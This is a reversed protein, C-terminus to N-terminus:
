ADNSQDAADAAQEPDLFKQKSRPVYHQPEERAVPTSNSLMTCFENLEAVTRLRAWIAKSTMSVRHREPDSM